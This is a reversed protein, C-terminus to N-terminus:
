ALSTRDFNGLRGAILNALNIMMRPRAKKCVASMALGGEGPAGRFPVLLFRFAFYPPATRSTTPIQLPAIESM